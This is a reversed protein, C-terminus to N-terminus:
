QLKCFGERKMTDKLTVYDWSGSFNEVNIELATNGPLGNRGVETHVTASM